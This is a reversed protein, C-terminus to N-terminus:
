NNSDNNAADRTEDVLWDDGQQVLIFVTETAPAESQQDDGLVSVAARGDDLIVVDSFSYLVVEQGSIRPTVSAKAQDYDEQSIPSGGFSESLFRDSYLSLSRLVDGANLCAVVELITDQVAKTTDDDAPDGAPLGTEPTAEPNQIPSEAPPTAIVANLDEPSIQDVTCEGAALPTPSADQAAVPAVAGTMVMLAVAAAVMWLRKM